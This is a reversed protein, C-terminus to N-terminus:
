KQGGKTFMDFASNQGVSNLAVPNILPEMYIPAQKMAEEAKQKKKDGFLFKMVHPVLAITIAPKLPAVILGLSKKYTTKFANYTNTKYTLSRLEQTTHVKFAEAKDKTFQEILGKKDDKLYAGPNDLFRNVGASIPDLIACTLMHGVCASLCNKTATMQKDEKEAGPMALVCIPKLVGALGLSLIASMKSENKETFDLLKNFTENSALAKFFDDNPNNKKFKHVALAIGGAIAGIVATGIAVKKGLSMKKDAKDNVKNDKEGAAKNGESVASGSFSVSETPRNINIDKCNNKHEIDINGPLAGQGTKSRAGNSEPHSAISKLKKHSSMYSIHEDFNNNLSLGVKM